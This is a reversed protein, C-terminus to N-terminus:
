GTGCASLVFIRRRWRLRVTWASTHCRRWHTLAPCQRSYVQSSSRRRSNTRPAKSGERSSSRCHARAQLSLSRCPRSGSSRSSNRRSGSGSNSSRRRSRSIRSRSGRSSGRSRSSSCRTVPRVSAAASYTRDGACRQFSNRPVIARSFTLLVSWVFAASVDCHICADLFLLLASFLICADLQLGEFRCTYPGM